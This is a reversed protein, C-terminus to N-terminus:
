ACFTWYSIIRVTDIAAIKADPDELHDIGTGVAHDRDGIEATETVTERDIATVHVIAVVGKKATTVAGARNTAIVVVATATEIARATVIVLIPVPAARSIETAVTTVLIPVNKM